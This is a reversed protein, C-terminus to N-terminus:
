VNSEVEQENSPGTDKVTLRMINLQNNIINTVIYIHGSIDTIIFGVGIEGSIITIDESAITGSDYLDTLTYGINNRENTSGYKPTLNVSGQPMTVIINPNYKNDVCATDGEWYLFTKGEIEEASVEINEGELYYGKEVGSITLLYSIDYLATIEIDRDPMRVAQEEARFIDFTKGDMLELYAIDDGSWRTFKYHTLDTDQLNFYVQVPQGPHYSGTGPLTSTSNGDKIVFKSEEGEYTTDIYAADSTKAYIEKNNDDITTTFSFMKEKNLRDYLRAIRTDGSYSQSEESNHRNILFIAIGIILALVIISIVSIIIIKKKKNM